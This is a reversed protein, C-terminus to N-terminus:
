GSKPSSDQDRLWGALDILDDGGIWDVGGGRVMGWMRRRIWDPERALGWWRSKIGRRRAEDTYRMLLREAVKWYGTGIGTHYLIPLKSSALPAIDNTWEVTTGMNLRDPQFPPVSLAAPIMIPQSLNLLPADKFIFRPNSHYVQAVPANGSGVILLLGFTWSSTTPDYTTIYGAELFPLFASVLYPWMAEGDSKQPIPVLM